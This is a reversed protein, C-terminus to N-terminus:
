NKDKLRALVESIDSPLEGKDIKKLRHEKVVEELDKPSPDKGLSKLLKDREKGM